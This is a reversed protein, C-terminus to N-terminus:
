QVNDTFFAAPSPPCGPGPCPDAKDYISSKAKDNWEGPNEPVMLKKNKMGVAILKIKGTTPGCLNSTGDRGLYFLITDPKVKLGEATRYKNNNIIEILDETRMPFGELKGSRPTDNAKYCINIRQADSYQNYYNIMDRTSILNDDLPVRINKNLVNFFYVLSLTLLITASIKIFDYKNFFKNPIKQISNDTSM